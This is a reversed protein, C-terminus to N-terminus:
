EVDDKDSQDKLSTLSSLLPATLLHLMISNIIIIIIIIIIIM